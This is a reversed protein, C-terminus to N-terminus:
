SVIITIAGALTFRSRYLRYNVNVGFGNTVSILAYSWGNQVNSYAGNDAVSAMDINFGNSADRFGNGATPSGFGDPWSFYKYDGAAMSYTGAFSSALQNTVLAEIQAETLVASANTGIFRRFQWTVTFLRSFITSQTDTAEISWQYSGSGAITKAGGINVSETGDDALGSALTTPTTVDKIAISNTQINTPNSTGWTFTRVGGTVSAGAELAVTQGSIIFSTFAPAQYPYLLMDFMQQMTQNLFTSGAPIGGLDEPTPTANTYTGSGISEWDGAATGNALYPVDTDIQVGLQGEFDPVAAARAAADDFTRTVRILTGGLYIEM